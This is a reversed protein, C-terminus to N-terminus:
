HPDGKAAFQVPFQVLSKTEREREKGREERLHPYIDEAQNYLSGQVEFEKQKQIRKVSNSTMGYTSLNQWIISIKNKM